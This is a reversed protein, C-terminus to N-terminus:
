VVSKRDPLGEMRLLGDTLEGHVRSYSLLAQAHVNAAYREPEAAIQERVLERAGETLGPHEQIYLRELYAPVYIRPDM